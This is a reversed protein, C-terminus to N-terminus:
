DFAFLENRIEMLYRSLTAHGLEHSFRSRQGFLM